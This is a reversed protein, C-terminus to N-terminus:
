NNGNGHRIVRLILDRDQSSLPSRGEAGDVVIPEPGPLGLEEHLQSVAAEDPARVICWLEAGPVLLYDVPCAGVSDSVQGEASQLARLLAEDPVDAYAHSDIFVLVEVEVEGPKIANAM